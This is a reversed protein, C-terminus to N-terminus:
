DSWDVEAAIGTNAPQRVLSSALSIGTILYGLNEIKGATAGILSPLVTVSPM